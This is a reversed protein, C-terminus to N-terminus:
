SEATKRKDKGNEIDKSNEKAEGKEKAATDETRGGFGTFDGAISPISAFDWRLAV